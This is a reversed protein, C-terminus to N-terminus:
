RTDGAPRLRRGLAAHFSHVLHLKGGPLFGKEHGTLHLSGGYLEIGAGDGQHLLEAAPAFGEVVMQHEHAGILLLM